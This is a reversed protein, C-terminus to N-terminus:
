GRKQHLLELNRTLGLLSIFYVALYPKTRDDPMDRILWFVLLYGSLVAMFSLCYIIQTFTSSPICQNPVVPEPENSLERLKNSLFTQELYRPEVCICTKLENEVYFLFFLTIPLLLLLVERKCPFSLTM